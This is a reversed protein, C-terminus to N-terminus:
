RGSGTNLRDRPPEITERVWYEAGANPNRYPDIWVREEIREALWARLLHRVFLLRNGLRRHPISYRWLNTYVADQTIGLLAAVESVTLVEPLKDIQLDLTGAFLARQAERIRATVTHKPM